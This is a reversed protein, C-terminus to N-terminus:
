NARVFWSSAEKKWPKPAAVYDKGAAFWKVLTAIADYTLAQDHSSIPILTQTRVDLLVWQETGRFKKITVFCDLTNSYLRYYVGDFTLGDGNNKFVMRHTISDTDILFLETQEPYRFHLLQKKYWDGPGVAAHETYYYEWDTDHYPDPTSLSPVSPSIKCQLPDPFRYPHQYRSFHKSHNPWSFLSSHSPHPLTPPLFLLSLVLFLYQAQQVGYNVHGTSLSSHDDHPLLPATQM